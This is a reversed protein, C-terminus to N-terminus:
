MQQGCKLLINRGRREGDGGHISLIRQSFLNVVAKLFSTTKNFYQVTHRGLKQM